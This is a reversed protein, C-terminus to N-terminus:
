RTQPKEQNTIVNVSVTDILLTPASARAPRLLVKLSFSGILQVEEVPCRTPFPIRPWLPATYVPEFSTLMLM